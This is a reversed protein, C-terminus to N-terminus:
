KLLYNHIMYETYIYIYQYTPRYIGVTMAAVAEITRGKDTNVKDVITTKYYEYNELTEERKQRSTKCKWIHIELPAGEGM